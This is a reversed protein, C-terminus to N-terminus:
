VLLSKIKRVEEIQEAVDEIHHKESHEEYILKTSIQRISELTYETTIIKPM